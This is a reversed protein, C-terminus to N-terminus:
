SGSGMDFPQRSRPEIHDPMRDPLVCPRTEKACTFTNNCMTLLADMAGTSKSGDLSLHVLLSLADREGEHAQAAFQYM